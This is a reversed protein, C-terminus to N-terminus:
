AFWSHIDTVKYMTFEIFRNCNMARFSRFIEYCPHLTINYLPNSYLFPCFLTFFLTRKSPQEMNVTESLAFNDVAPQAMFQFLPLNPQKENASLNYSMAGFELHPETGAHMGVQDQIAIM